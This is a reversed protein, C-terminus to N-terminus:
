RDLTIVGPIDQFVYDAHEMSRSTRTSRREAGSANAASGSVVLRASSKLSAGPTDMLARGTRLVEGRRFQDRAIRVPSRFPRRYRREVGACLERTSSSAYQLADNCSGSSACSPRVHCVSSLRGASESVRRRAPVRSLIEEDFASRALQKQDADGRRAENGAAFAQPTFCTQAARDYRRRLHRWADPSVRRSTFAGGGSRPDVDCHRIFWRVFPVWYLAEYGVESLWPGLVIPGSGAAAARLTRRVSVDQAIAPWASVGCGIGTARPGCSRTM